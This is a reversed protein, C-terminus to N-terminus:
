ALIPNANYGTRSNANTTIRTLVNAVSQETLRQQRREEAAVAEARAATGAAQAKAVATAVAEAIEVKIAAGIPKGISEGIKKLRNQEKLLQSATGTVMTAAYTEGALLFDPVLTAAATQAATRVNTWKENLTPVLGEDLMQQALAGGTEPGLSAIQQVLSDDAGQAKIANLVNGFWQAQAIQGDFAKILTQGTKKGAEDFQGEYAAGLDIGGLIRQAMNDAYDTVAKRANEWKAVQQELVMNLNSVVSEQATFAEQLRTVETETASAASGADTTREANERMLENWRQLGRNGWGIEAGLAQAQATYRAASANAGRQAETQQTYSDRLYYNALGAYRAAAATNLLGEEAGPLLRLLVGLPSNVGFLSNALEGLWFGLLEAGTQLNQLGENLENVGDRTDTTAALFGEGLATRLDEVSAQLVRMQNALSDQTREFDGQADGTQKLIAQHAALVKQQQTLAGNGDYIGMEMATQKLTADDLLVGYRRLPEAEGRLAAGLAQVADEPRTNKFSALDTSLSVLDRSFVALQQGTLGAAKGFTGFTNAADIASQRTQGLDANASEAFGFVSEAASGFIIESAAMTENLDSAAKVADAGIKLAFAGAAAGAAALVPGLNNRLGGVMSSISDDAEKVGKNWQKLDAALYVTLTKGRPAM